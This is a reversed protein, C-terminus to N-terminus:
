ESLPEQYWELVPRIIGRRQHKTMHSGVGGTDEIDFILVNEIHAFNKKGIIGANLTITYRGDSLLNGPIKCFCKYRGPTRSGSYREDDADYSEFVIIGEVTTIIIGIRCWPLYSFIEYEIEIWFPKTIELSGCVELNINKIRVAMIKLDSDSNNAFGDVWIVEGDTEAGSTLYRPIVVEPAGHFHM